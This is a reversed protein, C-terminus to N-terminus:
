GVDGKPIFRTPVGAVMRLGSHHDSIPFPFPGHDRHICGLAKNLLNWGAHACEVDATPLSDAATLGKMLHAPIAGM